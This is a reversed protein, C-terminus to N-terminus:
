QNICCINTFAQGKEEPAVNCALRLFLFSSRDVDLLASHVLSLRHWREPGLVTLVCHLHGDMTLLTFSMVQFCFVSCLRPSPHRSETRPPLQPCHFLTQLCRHIRLHSWVHVDKTAPPSSLRLTSFDHAWYGSVEAWGFAAM